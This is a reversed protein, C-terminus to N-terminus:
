GTQDKPNQLNENIQSIELNMQEILKEDETRAVAQVITRVIIKLFILQNKIKVFINTTATLKTELM